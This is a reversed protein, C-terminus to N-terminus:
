KPVLETRTLNIGPNRAFIRQRLRAAIMSRHKRSMFFQSRDEILLHKMADAKPRHRASLSSGHVRYNILPEALARGGYGCSIMDIWFLWDEFYGNYKTLFGEGNVARVHEWASRRIVSHSPATTARYLLHPDLDRTRWISDVEGFCRVWSYCTGLSPEAELVAVTRELYSPELSDDADLFCVYKGRAMAAGFNRTQALGSNHRRVITTRERKISALVAVTAAETSGDDVVIVELRKFTQNLASDLAAEVYHGYNFCPIVVSVLPLHAPWAPQHVWEGRPWLLQKAYGAVRAARDGLADSMRLPTSVVGNSV